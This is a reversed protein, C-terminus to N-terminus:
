GGGDTEQDCYVQITRLNKQHIKYVGSLKMGNQMFDLCDRKPQVNQCDCYYKAPLHYDDKCKCAGCVNDSLLKCYEASSDIKVQLNCTQQNLNQIDNRTGQQQQKLSLIEKEIQALRSNVDAKCNKPIVLVLFILNQLVGAKKM